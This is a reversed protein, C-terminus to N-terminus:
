FMNLIKDSGKSKTGVVPNLGTHNRIFKVKVAQSATNQLKKAPRENGDTSNWKRKKEKKDSMNQPLPLSINLHGEAAWLNKEQINTTPKAYSLIVNASGM